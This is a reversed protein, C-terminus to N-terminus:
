VLIARTHNTRDFSASGTNRALFAETPLRGSQARHTKTVAILPLRAALKEEVASHVM